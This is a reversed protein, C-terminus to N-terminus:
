KHPFLHVANLMLSMNYNVLSGEETAGGFGMDISSQSLAFEKKEANM